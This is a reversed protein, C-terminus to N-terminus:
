SRRCKTREKVQATERHRGGDDQRVGRAEHAPRGQLRGSPPGGEEGDRRLRAPRGRRGERGRDRLPLRPRLRIGHAGGPVQPQLGGTFTCPEVVPGTSEDVTWGWKKAQADIRANLVKLGEDMIEKLTDIRKRIKAKEDDFAKQLADRRAKVGEALTERVYAEFRSEGM